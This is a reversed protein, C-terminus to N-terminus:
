SKPSMDFSGISSRLKARIRPLKKLKMSVQFKENSEGDAAVSKIKVEPKFNAQFGNTGVLLDHLRMKKAQRLIKRYRREEVVKEIDPTGLASPTM